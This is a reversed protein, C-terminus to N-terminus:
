NTAINENIIPGTVFYVIEEKARYVDPMNSIDFRENSVKTQATDVGDIKLFNTTWNLIMDEGNSLKVRTPAFGMGVEQAETTAIRVNLPLAYPSTSIEDIESALRYDRWSEFPAHSQMSIIACEIIEGKKTKVQCPTEKFQSGNGYIDPPTSGIKNLMELNQPSLAQHSNNKLRMIDLKENKVHNMFREEPDLYWYSGCYRCQFLTGETLKEANIYLDKINPLDPDDNEHAYKWNFSITIGAQCSSCYSGEEMQKTSIQETSM